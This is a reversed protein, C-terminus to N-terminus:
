LGVPLTVSWLITQANIYLAHDDGRPFPVCTLCRGYAAPFFGEALLDVWQCACIISAKTESHRFSYEGHKILPIPNIGHQTKEAPSPINLHKPFCPM